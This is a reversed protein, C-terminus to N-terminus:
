VRFDLKAGFKALFEVYTTTQGVSPFCHLTYDGYATNNAAMKIARSKANAALASKPRREDNTQPKQTAKLEEREGEPKDSLLDQGYLPKRIIGYNKRREPTRGAQRDNFDDINQQCEGLPIKSQYATLPDMSPSPPRHVEHVTTFEFDDTTQSRM